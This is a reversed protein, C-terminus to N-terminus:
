ESDAIPPGASLETMPESAVQMRIRDDSPPDDASESWGMRTLFAKARKPADCVLRELGLAAFAATEAEALLRRGLGQGQMQPDVAFWELTGLRDSESDRVAVCGVVREGDTLDKIAAFLARTERGPEDEGAVRAALDRAQAYLPDDKNIQRIRIVPSGWLSQRPISAQAM